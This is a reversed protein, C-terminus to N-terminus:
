RGLRELISQMQAIEARQSSVIQECLDVIEQDTVSAEQCMLIAGSHHPIMSRLFEENGILAQSRMALFSAGFVVVAATALMLNLRRSPFMSRMTVLMILAMPAVMMLTMWTNNLNLYLHDLTAIMTYMVCYMVVFHAGLEMALSGYSGGRHGGDAAHNM